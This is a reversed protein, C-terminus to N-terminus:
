RPRGRRGEFQAFRNLAEARRQCGSCPKIGVASTVHKVVDGLGM